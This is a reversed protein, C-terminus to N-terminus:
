HKTMMHKTYSLFKFLCFMLNIDQMGQLSSADHMDIGKMKCTKIHMEFQVSTHKAGLPNFCLSMTPSVCCVLFPVAKIVSLKSPLVEQWALM